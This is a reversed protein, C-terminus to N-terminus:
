EGLLAEAMKQATKDLDIKYEGNAIQAKITEIRNLPTNKEITNIKDAKKSNSVDNMYSQQAKVFTNNVRM